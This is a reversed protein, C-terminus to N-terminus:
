QLIGEVNCLLTCLTLTTERQSRMFLEIMERRKMRMPELTTSDLICSGPGFPLELRYAQGPFTKYIQQIDPDFLKQLCYELVDSISKKDESRPLFYYCSFIRSKKTIIILPKGFDQSTSKLFMSLEEKSSLLNISFYKMIPAPRVAIRIRGILHEMVNNSTLKLLSGTNCDIAPTFTDNDGRRIYFACNSSAFESM